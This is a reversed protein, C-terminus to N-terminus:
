QSNYSLQTSPLSPSSVTCIDNRQNSHTHSTGFTMCHRLAECKQTRKCRRGLVLLFTTVTLGYTSFSPIIVQKDSVSFSVSHPCKTAQNIKMRGSNWKCCNLYIAWSCFNSSSKRKKWWERQHKVWTTRRIIIFFEKTPSRDSFLVLIAYM